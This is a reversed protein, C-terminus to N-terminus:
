TAATAGEDVEVAWVVVLSAGDEGVEVLSRITETRHCGEADTGSWRYRGDRATSVEIGGIQGAVPELLHAWRVTIPDPQATEDERRPAVSRETGVEDM